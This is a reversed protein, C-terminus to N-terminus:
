DNVPTSSYKQRLKIDEITRLLGKIIDDLDAEPRIVVLTVPGMIYSMEGVFGANRIAQNIYSVGEKPNITLTSKDAM